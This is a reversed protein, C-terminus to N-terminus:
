ASIRRAYRASPPLTALSCLRRREESQRNMHYIHIGEKNKATNYAGVFLYTDHRYGAHLLLMALLLLLPFRKLM